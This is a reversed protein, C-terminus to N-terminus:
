PSGLRGVGIGLANPTPGSSWRPAPRVWRGATLKPQEISAAAQDRGEVVVPESRHRTSARFASAVPYPGSHGTASALHILAKVQAQVQPALNAQRGRPGPAPGTIQAVLDPGNTAARTQQYPHRTM